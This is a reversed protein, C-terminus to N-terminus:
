METSSKHRNKIKILIKMYKNNAKAYWYIYHCIGGRIDKEVMLLMDYWNFSKIKNKRSDSLCKASDLAYIKLCINRFNEFVDVLLLTDSQVYLDHYKGLHKIEFDKFVKKAHGYDADTIDKMNLHSYFDEEEPLSTENFKKWHDMYEYLFVNKPM